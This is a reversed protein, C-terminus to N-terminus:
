SKFASNAMRTPVQLIQHLYADVNLITEPVSVHAIFGQGNPGYGNADDHLRSVEGLLLTIYDSFQWMGLPHNAFMLQHDEVVVQADYTAFSVIKIQPAEKVFGAALRRQMTADQMIGLTKVDLGHQKLLALTNTVNNGSNTSKTELLDIQDGFKQQLYQQFMSAETADKAVAVGHDIMQQRLLPTSHGAGGVLLYHKAVHERIADHMVNAGELISGGFLALADLQKIGFQKQLTTVTLRNVDRSGLFTSLQNLSKAVRNLETTTLTSLQIM